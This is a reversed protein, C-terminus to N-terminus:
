CGLLTCTSTTFHDVMDVLDVAASAVAKMCSLKKLPLARATCFGTAEGEFGNPKYTINAAQTSIPGCNSCFDDNSTKVGEQAGCEGMSQCMSLSTPWSKKYQGFDIGVGQNVMTKCADTVTPDSFQACFSSATQQELSAEVNLGGFFFNTFKDVDAQCAICAVNDYLRRQSPSIPVASLPSAALFAFLLVLSKKPM